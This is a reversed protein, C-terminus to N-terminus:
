KVIDLCQVKLSFTERMIVLAKIEHAHAYKTCGCIFNWSIVSYGRFFGWKQHFDYACYFVTNTFIRSRNEIFTRHKVIDAFIM